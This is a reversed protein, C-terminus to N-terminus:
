RNEGLYIVQINRYTNDENYQNIIKKLGEQLLGATDFWGIGITTVRLNFNIENKTQAQSQIDTGAARFRRIRNM